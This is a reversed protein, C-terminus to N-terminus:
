RRSGGTLWSPQRDQSFGTGQRTPHGSPQRESVTTAPTINLPRKPTRGKDLIKELQAITVLRPSQNKHQKKLHEELEEKTDFASV